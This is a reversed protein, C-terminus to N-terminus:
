NGFYTDCFSVPGVCGNANQARQNQKLKGGAATGKSQVALSSSGSVVGGVDTAANVAAVKAEAAQIDAPYTPDEGQAPNYGAKELQVLEARVQARTVPQNAQAFVAVPAALAAAVVVAQILSKM